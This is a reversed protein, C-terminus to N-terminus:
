EGWQGGMANAVGQFTISRIKARNEDNELISYWKAMKKGSKFTITEGKDVIKTPELLPLNKLWLCTRNQFPDGFQWPNIIQDPKRYLTSMIGVPNEVAIKEIPANILDMFFDIAKQQRGDKRKEPFWRAGSVALHDCPPHAIMLDWNEDLIELVDGEIHPGSKETPCVDCSWADHGRELFADRVRGSFECAILVKM